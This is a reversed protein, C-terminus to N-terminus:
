RCLKEIYSSIMFALLKEWERAFLLGPFELNRLAESASIDRELHINDVAECLGIGLCKNKDGRQKKPLFQIPNKKQMGMANDARRQHAVDPSSADYVPTHHRIARVIGCLEDIRGM